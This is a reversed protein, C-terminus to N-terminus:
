PEPKLRVLMIGLWLAWLAFLLIAPTTLAAKGEIPASVIAVASVSLLTAVALATYGFAVWIGPWLKM